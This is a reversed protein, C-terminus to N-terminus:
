KMHPATGVLTRRVLVAGAPFLAFAVQGLLGWLGPPELIKAVWDRPTEGFVTVALGLEAAMLAVFAFAGMILAASLTGIAFRGTLWWAALVCASIIIPMEILVAAEEGVSPVLWLIRLTGLVFGIGFVLAWYAVGATIATRTSAARSSPRPDHSM